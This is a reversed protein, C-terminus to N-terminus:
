RFMAQRAKYYDEMANNASGTAQLADLIGALRAAPIVALLVDDGVNTFTRMGMCGVSLVPESAQFAVPLASCGPRGLLRSVQGGKRQARDAAEQYLMAQKPRLWLLVLDVALPFGGLPGYVIGAAGRMMTPIHAAEEETIYECDCMAEVVSELASPASHAGPFGMVYAGLPCNDHENASAYFPGRQAESWFSCASPSTGSYTPIREPASEVFALAIPAMTLELLDCLRQAASQNLQVQQTTQSM